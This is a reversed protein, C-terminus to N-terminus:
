DAVGDIDDLDPITCVGADVGLSALLEELVGEERPVEAGVAPM